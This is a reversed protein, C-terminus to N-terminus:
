WDASRNLFILLGNEGSLNETNRSQGTQDQADIAPMASGVPPAWEAAYDDAFATPALGLCVVGSLLAAIAISALRKM